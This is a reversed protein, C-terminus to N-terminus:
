KHRAAKLKNGFVQALYEERSKTETAGAPAHQAPPDGINGAKEAMSAEHLAERKDISAHNFEPLRQDM